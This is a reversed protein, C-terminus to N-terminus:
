DCYGSLDESSDFRVWRVFGWGNHVVEVTEGNPQKKEDLCVYLNKFGDTSGAYQCDRPVSYTDRIQIWNRGVYFSYRCTPKPQQWYPPVMMDVPYQALQDFAHAPPASMLMLCFPLVMRFM